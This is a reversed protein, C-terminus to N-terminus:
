PPINTAMGVAIGVQGNLLLNPLRAPLVSPEQESGDYNDRFDVTDKDLDVLLENGARGLRAETYRSAAAPDGDMSGFNGQGDVLKYRMVWDQALRVMSDYISSDGHPHYKGMVEGAIRASKAFKGGPRLGQEGMTYLIRRHVPKMGDRVDPLARDIIVSMSYRLFSDEMVDEVTRNELTKSHTQEPM